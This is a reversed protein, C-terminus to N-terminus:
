PLLLFVELFFMFLLRVVKLCILMILPFFINDDVLDIGLRKSVFSKKFAVDMHGGGGGGLLKEM